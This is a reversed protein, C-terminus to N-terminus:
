SQYRYIRVKEIVVKEAPIGQEANTKDVRAIRDLVDFGQYVQGFVTNKRYFWPAGGVTAYLKVATKNFKIDYTNEIQELVKKNYTKDSQVIFFRSGNMDPGANEMCLAGHCPQLDPSFEDKFEKGWISKGGTGTGSPDGGAIISDKFIKYFTQGNYYGKKAHTIFNEVAKPAEDRFFRVYVSGYNRVEIQAVTNGNKPKSLQNIKKGCGALATMGVTMCLLLAIMKKM